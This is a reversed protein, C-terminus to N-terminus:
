IKNQQTQDTPNDKLRIRDLFAQRDFPPKPQVSDLVTENQLTKEKNDAKGELKKQKVSPDMSMRIFIGGMREMRSLMQPGYNQGYRRCLDAPSHNMTIITPVRYQCLRTDILKFLEIAWCEQTLCKDLDDLVGFYATNYHFLFQEKTRGDARDKNTIEDPLKGCFLWAINDATGADFIDQPNSRIGVEPAVANWACSALMTKGTGSPGYIILPRVIHRYITDAVWSQVAAKAIAVEPSEAQISTFNIGKFDAPVYTSLYEDLNKLFIYM